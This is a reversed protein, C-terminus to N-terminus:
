EKMAGRFSVDVNEEIRVLSDEGGGVGFSIREAAVPYTETGFM